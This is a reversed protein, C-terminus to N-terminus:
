VRLYIKKKKKSKSKTQKEPFNRIHDDVAKLDFSRRRLEIRIAEALFVYELAYRTM